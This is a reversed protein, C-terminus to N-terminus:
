RIRLWSVPDLWALVRKWSKVQAAVSSSAQQYLQVYTRRDRAKPGSGLQAALHLHTLEQVPPQAVKRAFAERSQGEERRFGLDALRGLMARYAIVPLKAEAVFLPQTRQWIKGGYLLLLTAALLLAFILPVYQRLLSLIDRNSPQEEDLNLGDKKASEALMRQLEQDPPPPPPSENREPSIDLVTWGQGRIYVEPWAHGDSDMVMLSAGRGRRKADVAYGTGVRAPIGLSRFLYTAGYAFHVCYGRRDGFMVNAAPEGTEPLAVRLNYIMNKDMWMKVAFAQAVPTQRFEPALTENVIQQALEAYRADQPLELAERLEADSWAPDGTGNNILREFQIRPAASQMWYARLFRKPDPNAEPRYAVPDVLGFPRPHETLLAVKATVRRDGPRPMRTIQREQFNEAADRDHTASTVLKGGNFRSFTSQRLYYYGLEPEYDTEFNLIAVPRPQNQSSNNPVEDEPSEGQKRDKQPQDGQGGSGGRRKEGQKDEKGAGGGMSLVQSLKSTPLLLLIVLALAALAIADRKRQTVRILLLAGLVTGILLFIPVPDWGRTIIGDILSFPRNWAGDRHAVVPEVYCFALVAVEAVLFIRHRLRSAGLLAALLFWALSWNAVSTLTDVLDATFIKSIWAPGSILRNFLGVALFVATGVGWLVPLRYPSRAFRPAFYAGAVAAMAASWQTWADTYRDSFLLAALAWVLIAIFSM